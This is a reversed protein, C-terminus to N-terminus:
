KGFHRTVTYSLATMSAHIEYGREEGCGVYLRPLQTPIHGVIWLDHKRSLAELEDAFAIVKATHSDRWPLEPWLKEAIGRALTITRHQIQRMAHLEEITIERLIQAPLEYRSSFDDESLPGRIDWIQGDPARVGAHWIVEKKMLGIMPWTLGQHLAIAFAYCEGQLFMHKHMDHLTSYDEPTQSLPKFHTPM